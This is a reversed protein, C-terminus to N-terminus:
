FGCCERAFAVFSRASEWDTITACVDRSPCEGIQAGDEFCVCTEGECETRQYPGDICQVSMSCAGGEDGASVTPDCAGLGCAEGLPAFSGECDDPIVTDWYAEALPACPQEALCGLWAVNAEACEGGSAYDDICLTYCFSAEDLECAAVSACYAQCAAPIPSEEGGTTADFTTEEGTTPEGTTTTTTTTTTTAGGTTEGASSSADDGCACALALALSRWGRRRRSAPSEQSARHYQM